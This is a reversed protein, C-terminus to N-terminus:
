GFVGIRWAKLNGALILDEHDDRRERKAVKDMVMKRSQKAAKREEIDDRYRKFTKQAM